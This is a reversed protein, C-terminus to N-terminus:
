TSRHRPLPTLTPPEQAKPFVLKQDNLNTKGLDWLLTVRFKQFFNKLLFVALLTM